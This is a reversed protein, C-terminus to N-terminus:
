LNNQSYWQPRDPKERSDDFSCQWVCEISLINECLYAEPMAFLQTMIRYMLDRLTRYQGVDALGTNLAPIPMDSDFDPELEVIAYPSGYQDVLKSTRPAHYTVSRPKYIIQLRTDAIRRVAPGYVYPRMGSILETAMRLEGHANAFAYGEPFYIVEAGKKFRGLGGHFNESTYIDSFEQVLEGFSIEHSREERPSATEIKSPILDSWQVDTSEKLHTEFPQNPIQEIIDKM